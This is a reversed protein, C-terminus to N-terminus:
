GRRRRHNQVAEVAADLCAHSTDENTTGFMGGFSMAGFALQPVMIGTRGLEVQKFTM